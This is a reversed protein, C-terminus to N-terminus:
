FLDGLLVFWLAVCLLVLIPVVAGFRGASYVVPPTHPSPPPAWLVRLWDVVDQAGISSEVCFHM